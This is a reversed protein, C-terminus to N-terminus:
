LTPSGLLITQSQPIKHNVQATPKAARNKTQAAQITQTIREISLLFCISPM